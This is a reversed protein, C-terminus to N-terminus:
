SIGNLRLASQRKWDHYSVLLSLPGSEICTNDSATQGNAARLLLEVSALGLRIEIATFYRRYGLFRRNGAPVVLDENFVFAASPIDAMGTASSNRLQAQMMTCASYQFYIQFSYKSVSLVKSDIYTAHGRAAKPLKICGQNSGGM